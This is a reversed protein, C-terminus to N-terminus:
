ALKWPQRYEKTLMKAAEADGIITEKAADWTIKKGSRIAINGLHCVTASRHGIEVDCIPLKRNKVCDLFNQHHDKSAILKVDGGSGVKAADQKEGGLTINIQGRNVFITGKEGEFTCGGKYDQGCLVTTGNAYTYTIQTWDPTEYWNQPHYKATGEITTPGSEDMGLAWQAIDLHHAGFNTQQGGSYDWFFRFLYHVKNANYKVLPAPGLWTDFDLEKPPQSDPVPGKARETWNPKPLGVKVTKIKGLYGNRVLECAQRFRDDSRQQSGTQVIRKSKRAANVMARGEVVTLTLPKEVYVDKGAECAHITQLAHWHDPTTICVADVDKSDLLKRYDAFTQPKGGAKEVQAAAEALRTTDVECVATVSARKLFANTNGRGQNGVGICGVRVRESPKDDAAFAGRYVAAPLSLFAGAALGSRM